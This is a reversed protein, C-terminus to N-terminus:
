SKFLMKRQFLLLRFAVVAGFKNQSVFLKRVNVMYDISFVAFKMEFPRYLPCKYTKTSTRLLTTTWPMITLLLPQCYDASTITDRISYVSGKSHTIWKFRLLCTIIWIYTNILHHKIKPRGCFSLLCYLPCYNRWRFHFKNSKM